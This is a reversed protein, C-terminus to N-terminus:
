QLHFSNLIVFVFGQRPIPFVTNEQMKKRKKKKKKGLFFYKVKMRPKPMKFGALSTATWLLEQRNAVTLPTHEAKQSGGEAWQLALSTCHIPFAQTWVASASGLSQSVHARILATKGDSHGRQHSHSEPWGKQQM